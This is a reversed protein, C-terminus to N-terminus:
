DYELSQSCVHLKQQQRTKSLILVKALVGNWLPYNAVLRETWALVRISVLVRTTSRRYTYTFLHYRWLLGLCLVLCELPRLARESYIEAHALLVLKFIFWFM